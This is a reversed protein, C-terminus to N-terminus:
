KFDESIYTGENLYFPYVMNHRSNTSKITYEISIYVAGDISDSTDVNINNVEIRAEYHLIATAIRDKIFTATSTDIGEFIMKRIGCGFLPIMVREGPATFLLIRLSEYIDQEEAVMKVAGSADDFEPPFSWGKGLFAHDYINGSMIGRDNCYFM